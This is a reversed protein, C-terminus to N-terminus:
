QETPPVEVPKPSYTEIWQERTLQAPAEIVYRHRQETQIEATAKGDIRDAVQSIAWPQQRFEVRGIVREEPRIQACGAELLARNQLLLLSRDGLDIKRHAPQHREYGDHLVSVFDFGGDDTPIARHTGENAQATPIGKGTRRDLYRGGACDDRCWMKARHNTLTLADSVEDQSKLLGQETLDLLGSGAISQM